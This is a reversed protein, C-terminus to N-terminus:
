AEKSKERLKCKQRHTRDFEAKSFHGGCGMNKRTCLGCRRYGRQMTCVTNSTQCQPCPSGAVVGLKIIADGLNRYQEARSKSNPTSKTRRAAPM